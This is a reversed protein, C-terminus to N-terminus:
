VLYYEQSIQFLSNSSLKCFPFQILRRCRSLNIHLYEQGLSSKPMNKQRSSYSFIEGDQHRYYVNIYMLTMRYNITVLFFNNRYSFIREEFRTQLNGSDRDELIHFIPPIIINRFKFLFSMLPITQTSLNKTFDSKLHCGNDTYIVNEQIWIKPLYWQTHLNTSVWFLTFIM